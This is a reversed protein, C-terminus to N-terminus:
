RYCLLAGTMAVAQEAIDATRLEETNETLQYRINNARLFTQTIDATIAFNVNQPINGSQRAFYDQNATSVVVGAVAGYRDFVPGGSNGPQIQASIQFNSLDDNLGTLASVVGSTLNGQSSLDGLLPFGYVVVDDGLRVRSRNHFSAATTPIDTRLLALDFTENTAIVTVDSAASGPIQFTLATCGSIVHYNTILHGQSTVAFATGSGTVQPIGSSSTESANDIETLYQSLLNALETIYLDAEAYIDEQDYVGVWIDYVGALPQDFTLGASLGFEDSYDDNCHWEGDPTNVLLVTDIESLAIFSLELGASGTTYDIKYDPAESVFGVCDYQTSDSLDVLGGASITIVRPDDDFGATLSIAGSYADQSVDQAVLSTPIATLLVLFIVARM